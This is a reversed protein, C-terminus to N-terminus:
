GFGPTTHPFLLERVDPDVSRIYTTSMGDSGWVGQPSNRRSYLRSAQMRTAQVVEDPISPYGFRATVRIEPHGSNPILLRTIPRGKALANDPGTRYGTIATYSNGNGVEVVLDALSGVPDISVWVGSYGFTNDQVTRGATAYVRTTAVRSLGFGGPELGCHNEVARSAAYRAEELLADLPDSDKSNKGIYARLSELSVYSIPPFTAVSFQGYDVDTVTGSVDWTYFWTGAEDCLVSASYEGTDTNTVSPNTEVGTPSLVTLAVTANTLVPPESNDRVELNLGQKDGVALIAM